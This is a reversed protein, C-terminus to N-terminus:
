LSSMTQASVHAMSITETESVPSPTPLIHRQPHAITPASIHSRRGPLQLRVTPARGSHRPGGQHGGLRYFILFRITTSYGACTRRSRMGATNEAPQYQYSFWCCAGRIVRQAHFHPWALRIEREGGVQPFSSTLVVFAFSWPRYSPALLM